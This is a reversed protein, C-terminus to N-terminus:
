VFRNVINELRELRGSHPMPSLGQANVRAALDDLSAGAHIARGLESDWGAYRASLTRELEASEHLAAACLFARALTDIGGIRGELQDIPDISQRRVKADFNMGGQGLGGHRIIELMPPVLQVHDNPFQDTDWGLQEDGRNADYWRFALPNHSGPGEYAITPLDAYVRNNM